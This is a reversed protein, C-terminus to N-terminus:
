ILVILLLLLATDLSIAGTCYNGARSTQPETPFNEPDAEQSIETVVPGPFMHARCVHLTM